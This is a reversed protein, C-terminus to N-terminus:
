ICMYVRKYRAAYYYHKVKALVPVGISKLKGASQKKEDNETTAEEKAAEDDGGNQVCKKLPFM